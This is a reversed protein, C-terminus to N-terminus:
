RSYQQYFFIEEITVEFYDALVKAKKLSPRREGTEYMAISSASIGTNKALEKQTLKKQKRLLALNKMFAGGESKTLAKM